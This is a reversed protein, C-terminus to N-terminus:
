RWTKNSSVRTVDPDLGDWNVSANGGPLPPPRFTWVAVVSGVISMLFVNTRTNVVNAQTCFLIIIKQVTNLSKWLLEPRLESVMTSSTASAADRWREGTDQASRPTNDRSSSTLMRAPGSCTASAGSWPRASSVSPATKALSTVPSKWPTVRRVPFSLLFSLPEHWNISNVSFIIYNLLKM